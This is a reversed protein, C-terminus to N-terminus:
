AMELVKKVLQSIGENIVSLRDDHMYAPTSVLLNKEDVIIKDGDCKRSDVGIKELLDSENGLTLTPIKNKLVVAVLAPAICISGIPKHAATFAEIIPVLFSAVKGKSGESPITSLNKAVGSGGPIILADFHSPNLQDIPKIQGRAIRAAEALMNRTESVEKGSVHDVVSHQNLNPAFIETQANSRDLELLTLVSERIESGDIYGCGALIVAVKKM